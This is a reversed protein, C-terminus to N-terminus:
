KFGLFPKLTLRILYFNNTIQKLFKFCCYITLIIYTQFMYCTIDPLRSQTPFVPNLFLPNFFGLFFPCTTKPEIMPESVHSLFGVSYLYSKLIITCLFFKSFSIKYILLYANINNNLKFILNLYRSIIFIEYHVFGIHYKYHKTFQRM